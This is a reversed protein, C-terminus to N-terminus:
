NRFSFYVAEGGARGRLSPAPARFANLIYNNILIVGEPKREVPSIM